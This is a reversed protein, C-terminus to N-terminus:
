GEDDSSKSAGTLINPLDAISDIIHDPEITPSLVTDPTTVGSLTLVSRWGARKAFAIDTEQRDGVMWVNDSTLERSVLEAMPEEPKGCVVAQKQTAKAIASVTAGAGPLPGRTTPLSADTNTAVFLAGNSIARAAAAVTDHTLSRALGVVVAEAPGNEVISIEGQRVTDRLQRSGVVLASEVGLGHLYLVAAMSSTLVTSPPVSLGARDELVQAVSQPTKTSNNTAFLIQWGLDRLSAIAASAGPIPTSGLYVVGDLDFVVAGQTHDSDLEVTRDDAHATQLRTTM